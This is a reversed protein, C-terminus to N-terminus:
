RDEDAPLALVLTHEAHPLGAQPWRIRLHIQGDTPLEGIWHTTEWSFRVEGTRTGEFTRISRDEVPVQDAFDDFRVHLEPQSGQEAGGDGSDADLYRRPKDITQRKAAEAHVDHASVHLHLMLGPPDTHALLRTLAAHIGPAQSLLLPSHVLVGTDDTHDPM